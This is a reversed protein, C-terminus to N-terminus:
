LQRLCFVALPKGQLVEPMLLGQASRTTVLVIGKVVDLAAYRELQHLTRGISGKIKVEIVIGAAEHFFDPRDMATLVAERKFEPSLIDAIGDQLDKESSYRYTYHSLKTAIEAPTM